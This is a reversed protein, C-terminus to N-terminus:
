SVGSYVSSANRLLIRYNSYFPPTAHFCDVLESGLDFLLGLVAYFLVEINM